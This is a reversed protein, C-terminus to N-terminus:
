QRTLRCLIAFYTKKRKFISGYFRLFNLKATKGNRPTIRFAVAQQPQERKNFSIVTIEKEEIQTVGTARESDVKSCSSNVHAHTQRQIGCRYTTASLTREKKRELGLLPRWFMLRRNNATKTGKQVKHCTKHWTKCCLVVEIAIRCTRMGEGVTSCVCYTSSHLILM